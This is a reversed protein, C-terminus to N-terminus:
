TLNMDLPAHTVVFCGSKTVVVDDEIRVGGWGEIYIGPEVTLVMGPELVIESTQSFGPGDHVEIGLAHGLGHGFNDGYGRSAIYDRAISDIEKGTKGPAIAEIAMRQADLVVQYIERQKATPKGLCITRTIDSNYMRYRAGFDMKLLQGVQLVADTPSAHPCASNPGCAAITEFAEKDAGLKRLTSDILLAVDKETLGPRIENLVVDFAADAIRAAERILAIEHEDKVGRLGEVLGSTSRLRASKDLLKRFRCHSSVTLNGSEFGIRCVGLDNALGASAVINSKGSFDKVVVDPCELRAQISYRSDVLLYSDELTVILAGYSGTFGTLYFINPIYTILFSDLGVGSMQQRLKSLRVQVYNSM